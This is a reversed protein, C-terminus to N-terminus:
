PTAPPQSSGPAQPSVGPPGIGVSPILLRVNVTPAEARALRMLGDDFTVLEAAGRRALEEALAIYIADSTRKCTRGHRVQEARAILSAEGDPPPSIVRMMTSLATVAANHQATDIDGKELKKCLVFLAESVIVGPAFVQAGNAGFRTLEATIIAHKDPEKACFGIVFNADVVILNATTTV